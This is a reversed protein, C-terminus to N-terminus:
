RSLLGSLARVILAAKSPATTIRWLPREFEASLFALARIDAWFGQSRQHGLEYTEGFPALERRLKGARYALSREGGGNTRLATIATKGPAIDQSTLRGALAAHLHVTGSVEYPTGM